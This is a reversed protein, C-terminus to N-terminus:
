QFHRYSVTTSRAAKGSCVNKHNGRPDRNTWHRNDTMKAREKRGEPSKDFALAAIKSERLVARKMLKSAM